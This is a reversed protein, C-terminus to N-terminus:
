QDQSPPPPVSGDPGPPPTGAGPPPGGPRMDRGPRQTGMGQLGKSQDATLVSRVQTWEDIRASIVAAEAKEAAAALNKVKQADYDSAMLADHLSRTADASKQSLSHISLESDSVAAKLKTTQDDTLGLAESARDIAGPPLPVLAMAPSSM